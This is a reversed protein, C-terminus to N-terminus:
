RKPSLFFKNSKGPISCNRSRRTRLRILM